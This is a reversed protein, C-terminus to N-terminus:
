KIRKSDHMEEAVLIGLMLGMTPLLFLVVQELTTKEQAMVLAMVIVSLLLVAISIIRTTNM